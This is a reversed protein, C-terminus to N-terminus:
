EEGGARRGIETITVITGKAEFVLASVPSPLM